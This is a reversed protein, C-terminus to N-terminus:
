KDNAYECFKKTIGRRNTYELIDVVVDLSAKMHVVALAVHEDRRSFLFSSGCRPVSNFLSTSDSESQIKKHM